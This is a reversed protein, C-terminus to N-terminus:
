FPNEWGCLVIQMGIFITCICTMCVGVTYLMCILRSLRGVEAFFPSPKAFQTSLDHGAASHLAYPVILNCYLLVESCLVSQSRPRQGRRM